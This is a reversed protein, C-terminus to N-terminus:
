IEATTGIPAVVPAIVTDVDPPKAVLGDANVTRTAAVLGTIVDKEGELPGTAVETKKTPVRNM